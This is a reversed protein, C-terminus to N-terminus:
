FCAVAYTAFCPRTLEGATGHIHPCGPDVVRVLGLDISQRFPESQFHHHLIDLTINHHMIKVLFAVAKRVPRRRQMLNFNATHFIHQM